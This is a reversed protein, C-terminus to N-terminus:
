YQTNFEHFGTTHDETIGFWLLEGVAVKGLWQRVNSSCTSSPYPPHKFQM